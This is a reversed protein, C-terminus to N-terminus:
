GQAQRPSGHGAFLGAHTQQRLQPKAAEGRSLEGFMVNLATAQGM